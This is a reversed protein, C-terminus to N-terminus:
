AEGEPAAFGAIVGDAVFRGLAEGLLAEAHVPDAGDIAADLSAGRALRELFRWEHAEVRRLRVALGERRVLVHDPGADRDPTGDREPQNAEWLAMVPHASAALRVAPHLAFRIEGYREPLVRALAAFDLTAADAGHFCEHCAWELRAVDPLYPLDRAFAYGEIFAAFDAGYLNLDGSASSAARAFRAAAERFFAEGVLRRVVPYTEALSNHLTALVNRRYIALRVDAPPSAGFLAAAFDRQLEALSSV